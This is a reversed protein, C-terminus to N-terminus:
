DVLRRIIRENTANATDMNESVYTATASGAGHETHLACYEKPSQGIALMSLGWLVEMLKQGPTPPWSFQNRRM